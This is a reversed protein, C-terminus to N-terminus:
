EGQTDLYFAREAPTTLPSDVVARYIGGHRVDANLVTRRVQESSRGAGRQVALAKTRLLQSAEALRSLARIVIEGGEIGKAAALLDQARKAQAEADAVTGRSSELLNELLTAKAALRREFGKLTRVERRSVTHIEGTAGDAYQIADEGVSLVQAPVPAPEQRVPDPVPQPGPAAAPQKAPPPTRPSPLPGEASSTTTSQAAAPDTKAPPTSPKVPAKQTQDKASSKPEPQPNAAPAPQDKVSLKPGPQPETAAKSKPQPGTAPATRSATKTLKPNEPPKVAPAVTKAAAAAADTSTGAGPEASTSRGDTGAPQEQATRLTASTAGTIPQLKNALGPKTNLANRDRATDMRRKDNTDQATRHDWGDRTGDRYAKVHGVAAAVRTGDRFGAERSPLTRPAPGPVVPASASETPATNTSTNSAKTDTRTSTSPTKPGASDTNSSTKTSTTGTLTKPTSGGAPPQDTNAKTQGTTSRDPRDSRGAPTTGSRDSRDSRGASTNKPGHGARDSSSTDATRHHDASDRKTSRDHHDRGSHDSRAATDNKASRDDRSSRDRKSANDNKAAHDRHNKTDHKHQGNHQATKSNLDALKSDRGNRHQETRDAKVSNSASSTSGSVRQEKIEHTRRTTRANGTRALRTALARVLAGLPGDATGAATPKDKGGGAATGSNSAPSGSAPASERLTATTAIPAVPRAPDIAAFVGALASRPAAAPGAAPPATPGAPATPGTGAPSTATLDSMSEESKTM